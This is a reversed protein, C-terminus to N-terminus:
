SLTCYLNYKKKEFNSAFASDNTAIELINKLNLNKKLNM